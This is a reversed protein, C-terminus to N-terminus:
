CAFCSFAEWIDSVTVTNAPM